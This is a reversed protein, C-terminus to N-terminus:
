SAKRKKARLMKPLEALLADGLTTRKAEPYATDILGKRFLSERVRWEHARPDRLADLQAKTIAFVVPSV